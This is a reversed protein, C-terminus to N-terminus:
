ARVVKLGATGLDLVEPTAAYDFKGPPIGRDLVVEVAVRGRASELYARDKTELGSSPHLAVQGPALLLGSERYLKTFLPTSAGCMGGPRRAAAGDEVKLGAIFEAANVVAAPAKMWEPEPWVATPLAWRTHRAYGDRWWTLAVVVAGPALKPEIEPWPVYEGPASEDIYLVGVAGDPVADPAPLDVPVIAKSALERNLAMAAPSMAPDIVAVPGASRRALAAVDACAPMWEDALAATRSFEPEIQVLRFGSRAAWV